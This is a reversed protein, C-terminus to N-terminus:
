SVQWVRVAGTFVVLPLMQAALVRGLDTTSGTRQHHVARARRRPGGFTSAAQGLFLHRFDPCSLFRAYRSV